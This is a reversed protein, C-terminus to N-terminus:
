ESLGCFYYVHNNAKSSKFYCGQCTWTIEQGLASLCVQTMLKHLIQEVTFWDRIASNIKNTNTATEDTTRSDWNWFMLFRTEGWAQYLFTPKRKHNVLDLCLSFKGDKKWNKALQCVGTLCIKFWTLSLM